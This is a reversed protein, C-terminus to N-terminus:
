EREKDHEESAEPSDHKRRIVLKNYIDRLPKFLFLFGTLLGFLIIYGFQAVVGFIGPDLYGM